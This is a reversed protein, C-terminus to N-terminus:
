IRCEKYYASIMAGTTNDSYYFRNSEFLGWIRKDIANRTGLKYHENSAKIEGNTYIYSDNYTQNAPSCDVFFGLDDNYCLKLNIFNENYNVYINRALVEKECRKCHQFVPMAWGGGVISQLRKNPFGFFFRNLSITKEDNQKGIIEVYVKAGEAVKIIQSEGEVMTSVQKSICLERFYPSFLDTSNALWVCRTTERNRRITSVLDLFSVFEDQTYSGRIFEDYIIFDCTNDAFSSKYEEHKDVSFTYMFPTSDTDLINGDEDRYCLYYKQGYYKVSNWRDDFIVSIYNFNEITAFIGKIKKAQIQNETPRIYAGSIKYLKRMILLYLLVNTTKGRTRNSLILSHACSEFPVKQPTWVDRPCNLKKYEKRVKSFDYMM